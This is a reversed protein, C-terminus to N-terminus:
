DSFLSRERLVGLVCLLIKFRDPSLVAALSTGDSIKIFASKRPSRQTKALVSLGTFLLEARRCPPCLSFSHTGGDTTTNLGV